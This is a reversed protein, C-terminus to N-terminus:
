ELTPKLPPCHREVNGRDISKLSNVPHLRSSEPCRTCLLVRSRSKRGWHEPSFGTPHEARHRRGRCWDRRDQRLPCAWSPSLSGGTQVLSRDDLNPHCGRGTVLNQQSTRERRDSNLDRSRRCLVPWPFWLLADRHLHGWIARDWLSQFPDTGVSPVHPESPHRALQCWWKQHGM